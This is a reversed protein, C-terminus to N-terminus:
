LKNWLQFTLYSRFPACHAPDFVSSSSKKLAKKVGLGGVLYIDPDSLGRMKAYDVTWSEIGKLALWDTPNNTTPNELL